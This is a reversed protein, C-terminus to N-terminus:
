YRKTKISAINSKKGYLYKGFADIAYPRVRVYYRTRQEGAFDISLTGKNKTELVTADSMKKKQSVSVQYDTAAKVRKGLKVSTIHTKDTRKLKSIKTKGALSYNKRKINFTYESAHTSSSISLYYTGKRLIFSPNEIANSNILTTEAGASNILKVEWDGTNSIDTPGFHLSIKATSKNTFKYYDVSDGKGLMMGCYNTNFKIPNAETTSGNPEHEYNADPTFNAKFSYLQKTAENHFHNNIAIYLTTGPAFGYDCTTLSSRESYYSYVEGKDNLISIDWADTESIDQHNISFSLRGTTSPTKLVYWDTGDPEVMGNIPVNCTLPTATSQSDNPELEWNEEATQQILLQYEQKSSKNFFYSNLDIYYTQGKTCPWKCTEISRYGERSDYTYTRAENKLSFNWSGTEEINKHKISIVFYGNATTTFRYYKTADQNPISDTIPSNVQLTTAQSAVLDEAQATQPSTTMPFATCALVLALTAALTRKGIHKKWAETIRKIRM